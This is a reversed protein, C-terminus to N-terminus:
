QNFQYNSFPLSHVEPGEIGVEHRQDSGYWTHILLCLCDKIHWAQSSRDWAMFCEHPKLETCADKAIHWYIREARGGRHSAPHYKAPPPLTPTPHTYHLPQWPKSQWWGGWGEAGAGGRVYEKGAPAKRQGGGRGQQRQTVPPCQETNIVGDTPHRGNTCVSVSLGVWARGAHWSHQGRGPMRLYWLRSSGLLARYQWLPIPASNATFCM